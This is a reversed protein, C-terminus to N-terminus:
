WINTATVQSSTGAYQTKCENLNTVPVQVKQLVDATTSAGVAINCHTLDTFNNLTSIHLLLLRRVKGETLTGWGAVTLLTGEPEL